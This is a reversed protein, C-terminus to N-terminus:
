SYNNLERQLIEDVESDTLQKVYRESYLLYRDKLYKKKEESIKLIDNQKIQTGFFAIISDESSFVEVLKLYLFDELQGVDLFDAIHAYANLNDSNLNEYFVKLNINKDFLEQKIQELPKIYFPKKIKVIEHDYNLIEVFNLLLLIDNKFIKPLDYPKNHELYSYDEILHEFVKSFNKIRKDIAFNAQDETTFYFKENSEM